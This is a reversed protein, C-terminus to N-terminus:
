EPLAARPAGIDIVRVEGLLAKAAASAFGLKPGIFTATLDARVCAGLPEGTDCDMGSPLDVALVRAAHNGATNIAEIWAPFPDRAEGQLGTGLLADVIWAAGDLEHPLTSTDASLDRIPTGSRQLIELNIAADGHYEAPPMSLLVLVDIGHRELHRAIVFGDGANNGKGACIVVRGAPRQNLRERLLDATGRGANEMLVV